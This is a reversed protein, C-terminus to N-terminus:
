QFSAKLGTQQRNEPHFLMKSRNRPFLFLNLSFLLHMNPVNKQVNKQAMNSWLVPSLKFQKALIYAVFRDKVSLIEVRDLAQVIELFHVLEGQIKM